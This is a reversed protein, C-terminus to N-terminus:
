APQCPLCASLASLSVLCAPQCPLCASLAPQCPLSVLCASLAPQCPLSVPCASLAGPQCSLCASFAPTPNPLCVTLNVLCPCTLLHEWKLRGNNKVTAMLLVLVLSNVGNILRNISIDIFRVGEIYFM